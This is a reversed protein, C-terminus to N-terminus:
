LRSSSSAASFRRSLDGVTLVTGIISAIRKQSSQPINLFVFLSNLFVFGTLLGSHTELHSDTRAHVKTSANKRVNGNLDTICLTFPLLSSLDGLGFGTCLGCTIPYTCLQVRDIRTTQNYSNINFLTNSVPCGHTVVTLYKDSNESQTM